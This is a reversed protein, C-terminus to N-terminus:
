KKEFTAQRRPFVSEPTNVQLMTEKSWSWCGERCVVYEEEMVIGEAECM